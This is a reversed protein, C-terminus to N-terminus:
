AKPTSSYIEGVSDPLLSLHLELKEKSLGAQPLAFVLRFIRSSSTGSESTLDQLSWEKGGIKIPTKTQANVVQIWLCDDQFNQLELKAALKSGQVEWAVQTAKPCTLTLEQSFTDTSGLYSGHVYLGVSGKQVLDRVFKGSDSLFLSDAEKKKGVKAKLKVDWAGAAIGHERSTNRSSLRVEVTAKGEKEDGASTIADSPIPAVAPSSSSDERTLDFDVKPSDIEMYAWTFEAAQGWTLGPTPDTKEIFQNFRGSGWKFQIPDPSWALGLAKGSFDITAHETNLTGLKNMAVLPYDITAISIQLHANLTAGLKAGFAKDGAATGAVEFTGQSPNFTFKFGFGAELNLSADITADLSAYKMLTQLNRFLHVNEWDSDKDKMAGAKENFSSWMAHIGASATLAGKGKLVVSLEWDDQDSSAPKLTFDVSAGGSIGLDIRWVFPTTGLPAGFPKPFSITKEGSLLSVSVQFGDKGMETTLQDGKALVGLGMGAKIAEAEKKEKQREEKSTPAPKTKQKSKLIKERAEKRAEVFSDRHERGTILGYDFLQTYFTSLFQFLAFNNEPASKMTDAPSLHKFSDAGYAALWSSVELSELLKVMYETKAKKVKEPFDPSTATGKPPKKMWGDHLVKRLAYALLLAGVTAAAVSGVTAGISAKDEGDEKGLKLDKHMEIMKDLADENVLLVYVPQWGVQSGPEGLLMRARLFGHCGKTAFPNMISESEWFRPDRIITRPSQSDMSQVVSDTEDDKPSKAFGAKPDRAWVKLWCGAEIDGSDTRKKGARERELDELTKDNRVIVKLKYVYTFAAGRRPADLKKCIWDKDSLRATVLVGGKWVSREARNLQPDIKYEAWGSRPFDDPVHAHDKALKDKNTALRAPQLFAWVHIAPGKPVDKKLDIEVEIWQEVNTCIVPKAAKKLEVRALAMRKVAEEQVGKTSTSEAVFFRANEEKMERLIRQDLTEFVVKERFAPITRKGQLALPNPAEPLPDPDDFNEGPDFNYKSIYPKANFDKRPNLKVFPFRTTEGLTERGPTAWSIKLSQWQTSVPKVAQSLSGSTRPPTKGQGKPNSATKSM